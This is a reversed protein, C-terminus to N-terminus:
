RLLGRHRLLALPPSSSPYNGHAEPGSQAGAAFNGKTAIANAFGPEPGAPVPLRGHSLQGRWPLRCVARTQHLEAIEGIRARPHPLPAELVDRGAACPSNHRELLKNGKTSSSGKRWRAFVLRGRVRLPWRGARKRARAHSRKGSPLVRCLRFCRFVERMGGEQTRGYTGRQCLTCGQRACFCVGGLPFFPRPNPTQGKM